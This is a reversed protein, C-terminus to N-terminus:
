SSIDEVMINIENKKNVISMANLCVCRFGTEFM